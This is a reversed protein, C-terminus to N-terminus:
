FLILASLINRKQIRPTIMKLLEDFLTADLRLFNKFDRPESLRLYILLNENTFENSKKLWEKMWRRKKKEKKLCVTLSIALCGAETDSFM